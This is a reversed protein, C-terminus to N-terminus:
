HIILKLIELLLLHAPYFVYFFYKMNLKGREGSYFLLIVLSLLSYTQIQSSGMVLYILGVAFASLHVPHTDLCDLLKVNTNKTPHFLAAFVPLLCGRFGYDVRVNKCIYRVVLVAFVAVIGILIKYYVKKDKDFLTEKFYQLAYILLISFSFTFLISLKMERSYVYYVVQLVVALSFITLFHKLKNKTYRCGQAIMYAFLPMSLRGIIRLIRVQPFLMFGLHDIFMTIAAIIKIANSSLGNKVTTEM